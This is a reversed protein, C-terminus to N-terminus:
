LGHGRDHSRRTTFEEIALASGVAAIYTQPMGFDSGASCGSSRPCASGARFARVAAAGACRIHLSTQTASSCVSRVLAADARSEGGSYARRHHFRHIAPAPARGSTCACRGGCWYPRPDNRQTGKGHPRERRGLNATEATVRDAEPPRLIDLRSASQLCGGTVGDHIACRATPTGGQVSQVPAPPGPSGAMVTHGPM